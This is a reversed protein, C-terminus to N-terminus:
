WWVVFFKQLEGNPFKIWCLPSKKATILTNIEFIFENYKLWNVQTQVDQLWNTKSAIYFKCDKFQLLDTHKVYFGKICEKNLDKFKVSRKYPTFLQAKFFVRQEIEKINLNLNNITSATHKSYLLPLQKQKLKTLKKLLTDNRNPGIWHEIETNGVSDDFLYFKYIIEVHYPTNNKTLICDIEGITLKDNQIQINEALITINKSFKFETSVYREVRKGLRLNTPIKDTFKPTDNIELEFQKLHYVSNNVWLIPTNIYGIFQQAIDKDQAM